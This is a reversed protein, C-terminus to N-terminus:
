AFGLASASEIQLLWPYAPNSNSYFRDSSFCRMQMRDMKIPKKDTPSQLTNSVTGFKGNKTDVLFDEGVTTLRPGGPLPISKRRTEPWQSIDILDLRVVSTTSYSGQYSCKLVTYGLYNSAAIAAESEVMISDWGSNMGFNVDRVVDHLVGRSEKMNKRALYTLAIRAKFSSCQALSAQNLVHKGSLWRHCWDDENELVRSWSKSAISLRIKPLDDTYSLLLNL